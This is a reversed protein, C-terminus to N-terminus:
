YKKIHILLLKSLILSILQMENAYSVFTNIGTTFLMSSVITLSLVRKFFSLPSVPFYGLNARQAKTRINNFELNGGTPHFERIFKNKAGMIAGRKVVM